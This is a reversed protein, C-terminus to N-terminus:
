PPANTPNSRTVSSVTCRGSASRITIIMARRSAGGPGGGMMLGMGPKPEPKPPLGSRMVKHILKQNIEGYAETGLINALYLWFLGSILNGVINASSM